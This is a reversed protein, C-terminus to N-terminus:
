LIRANIFSGCFSKIVEQEELEDFLKNPLGSSKLSAAASIKTPNPAKVIGGIGRTELLYIKGSWPSKSPNNERFPENQIVDNQL